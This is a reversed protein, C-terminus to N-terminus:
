PSQVPADRDSDLDSDVTWSTKLSEASAPLPPFLSTPDAMARITRNESMRGAPSLDFHGDLAFGDSSEKGGITSTRQFSQRFVLAWGDADERVVWVTWERVDRSSNKGGKGDDWEHPPSACRYELQQGLKLKYRPLEDATVSVAVGLAVVIWSVLGAARLAITIRM